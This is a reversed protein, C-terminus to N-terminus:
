CYQEEPLMVKRLKFIAFSLASLCMSYKKFCCVTEIGLTALCFAREKTLIPLFNSDYLLVNTWQLYIKYYLMNSNPLCLDSAYECVRERARQNGSGSWFELVESVSRSFTNSKQWANKYFLSINKNLWARYLNLKKELDSCIIRKRCRGAWCVRYTVPVPSM